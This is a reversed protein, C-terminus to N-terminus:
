THHLLPFQTTLFFLFFFIPQYFNPQNWHYFNPQCIIPLHNSLLFISEWLIPQCLIPQRLSPHHSFQSAFFLIPQGVFLKGGWFFNTPLFLHNDFFQNFFFNAFFNTPWFIPQCFIYINPLFNTLLFFQKVFSQKTTSYLHTTPDISLHLSPYFPQNVLLCISPYIFQSDSLSISLCIFLLFIIIHNKKYISLHIFYFISLFYFIFIFFTIM